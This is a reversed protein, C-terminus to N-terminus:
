VQPSSVEETGIITVEGLRVTFAKKKKKRVSHPVSTARAKSTTYIRYLFVHIAWGGEDTFNELQKDM